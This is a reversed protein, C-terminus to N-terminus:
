KAVGLQQKLTAVQASARQEISTGFLELFSDLSYGVLFANLLKLNNVGGLFALGFFGILTLLLKLLIQGSKASIILPFDGVAVIPPLGGRSQTEKITSVGIHAVIGILIAAWASVFRYVDNAQIPWGPLPVYCVGVVVATCLVFVFALLLFSARRARPSDAYRYILGNAPDVIGGKITKPSWALYNLVRVRSEHDPLEDEFVLHFPIYYGPRAVSLWSNVRAPITLFGLVFIMKRIQSDLINLCHLQEQAELEVDPNTLIPNALMQEWLNQLHRITDGDHIDAMLDHIDHITTAIYGGYAKITAEGKRVGELVSQLDQIEARLERLRDLPLESQETISPVSIAQADSEFPPPASM